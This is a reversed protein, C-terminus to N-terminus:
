GKISMERLPKATQPGSSGLQSAAQGFAERLETMFGYVEQVAEIDKNINAQVLRDYLYDYLTYLNRAIDYDMNLTAMLETIIDQTKVLNQHAGNHDKDLLAKEAIRLNKLAGDFLMLLLRAPSITEVSTKKYQDYAQAPMNM